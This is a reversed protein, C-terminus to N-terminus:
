RILIIKKIFSSASTTSGGVDDSPVNVLRGRTVTHGGHSIQDEVFFGLINHVILSTHGSPDTAFYQDPDIVPMPVIRPSQNDGFNDSVVAGHPHATDVVWRATPDENALSDSDSFLCHDTPGVMNGNETSIVQGISVSVNPDCSKINACYDSAGSDGPHLRVPQFFGASTQDQSGTHIEVLRGYDIPTVGDAAFPTWGTGAIPTCGVDSPACNVSPVYYDAEPPNHTGNVPYKDFTSNFPDFDPDQRGQVYDHEHGPSVSDYEDWKDVIAFPRMCTVSTGSQVKATATASIDQAVIGALRGFFTPLPNGRSSTRYVDVKVCTAAADDPCQNAFSPGLFTVDTSVNNNPAEGFIKNAIAAAHASQKAPGSDTFDTPDDFALGIAGALAGADAANQAQRRSSWLIGYDIVLMSFALLGLMAVAVQILIAGREEGIRMRYNSRMVLSRRTM